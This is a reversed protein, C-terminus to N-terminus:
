KMFENFLESQKCKLLKNNVFLNYDTNKTKVHNLYNLHAIYLKNLSKNAKALIKQEIKSIDNNFDNLESEFDSFEMELEEKNEQYEQIMKKVYKNNLDNKTLSLDINTLLNLILSDDPLTPLYQSLTSSIVSSLNPVIIKSQSTIKVSKNLSQLNQLDSSYSTKYKQINNQLSLIINNRLSSKLFTIYASYSSSLTSYSPLLSTSLAVPSSSLLNILSTLSSNLATLASSTM